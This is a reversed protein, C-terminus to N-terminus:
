KGLGLGLHLGCNAIKKESKPVVELNVGVSLMVKKLYFNLSPTMTYGMSFQLNQGFIKNEELRYFDQANGGYRFTWLFPVSIGIWDAVFFNLSPGVDTTLYWKKEGPYNPNLQAPSFGDQLGFDMSERIVVGIYAKTTFELGVGYRSMHVFQSSEFTSTNYFLTFHAHKRAFQNWKTEKKETKEDSSNTEAAFMSMTGCLLLAFILLKKM